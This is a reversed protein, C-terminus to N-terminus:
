SSLAKQMPYLKILEDFANLAEEVTILKMCINNGGCPSGYGIRDCPGCKQPHSLVICKHQPAWKKSSTPGYFALAPTEVATAIHLPASCSGIFYDVRRLVEASETLTLRGRFDEINDRLPFDKAKEAEGGLLFFQCDYKMSVCDLFEKYYEVPWDKMTTSSFPAIAVKMETEHARVMFCDIKNREESTAPAVDLRTVDATVKLGIGKEIVEALYKTFYIEESRAEREVPHTLFLKRKHAIGVRVPIRALFPLVASRYKFDLCIAVDYHWIKKIVPLIPMGKTYVVLEDVYPLDVLKATQPSVLFAIKSNPFRERVARVMGTSLVVDGLQNQQLLLIKDFDCCDKDKIEGLIELYTKGPCDRKIKMYEKWLNIRVISKKLLYTLFIYVLIFLLVYIGFVIGLLSFFDISNLSIKDGEWFVLFGFVFSIFAATAGIAPGYRKEDLIANWIERKYSAEKKMAQAKEIEGLIDSRNIEFFM